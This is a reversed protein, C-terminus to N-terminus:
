QFGEEDYGIAPRLEFIRVGAGPGRTAQDKELADPIVASSRTGLIEFRPSGSIVLFASGATRQKRSAMDAMAAAAELRKGIIDM